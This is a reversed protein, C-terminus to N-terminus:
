KEKGFRGKHTKKALDEPTAPIAIRHAARDFLIDNPTAINGVQPNFIAIVVSPQLGPDDVACGIQGMILCAVLSLIFQTHCKVRFWGQCHIAGVMKM